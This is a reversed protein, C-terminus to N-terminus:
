YDDHINLKDTKFSYITKVSSLSADTQDHQMPPNFSQPTSATLRSSPLRLTTSICHIFCPPAGSLCAEKSHAPGAACQDLKVTGRAKLRIRAFRLLALGSRALAAGPRRVGLLHRVRAAGKFCNFGCLSFNTISSALLDSRM